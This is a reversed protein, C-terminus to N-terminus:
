RCVSAPSSYVQRTIAKRGTIGNVTYDFFGNNTDTFTFTGSGVPPVRLNDPNWPLNYATGVTRFLEGAYAGSATRRGASMVIWQGRGSADYTFWTAFLIEGQHTLNIGWGSEALGGWWLDQFNGSTSAAGNAVCTSVPSAFEQRVINKTQSVGGISYTFTGREASGFALVGTGVPPSAVASPNWTPVNFAPGTTRFITGEYRNGTTKRADSMVLWMQSGDTDYTFWTVFLIDGQHAVNLGWGSESLPPDNWWLAQFNMAAAVGAPITGTLGAFNRPSNVTTAGSRDLSLAGTPLAPYQWIDVSAFDLIGGGPAFFGNPVVFDPAVVGLAAFGETAILMTKGQTDPSLNRPFFYTRTEGGPRSSVLAHDRILHENPFATTLEVFQVSGDANSYIETMTWLHFAGHATAAFLGVLAICIRGLNGM